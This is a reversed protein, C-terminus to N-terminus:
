LKSVESDVKSDPNYINLIDNYIKFGIFFAFIGTFFMEYFQKFTSVDNRGWFTCSSPLKVVKSLVPVQFEICSDNTDELLGKIFDYTYHIIGGFGFYDFNDVVEVLNNFIYDNSKEIRQNSDTDAQTWCSETCSFSSTQSWFTINYPQSFIYTDNTYSGNTRINIDNVFFNNGEIGYTNSNDDGILYSSFGFKWSTSTFNVTFRVYILNTNQILVEYSVTSNNVCNTYDNPSGSVIQCVKPTYDIVEGISDDNYAILDFQYTYIGNFDIAYGDEFMLNPNDNAVGSPNFGYVFYYQNQLNLDGLYMSDFFKIDRTWVSPITFNYDGMYSYVKSDFTRLYLLENSVFRNTYRSNFFSSFGLKVSASGSDTGTPRTPLKYGYYQVGNITKTSDPSVLELAMASSCLFLTIFAFIFFLILYKIIFKLNDKDFM